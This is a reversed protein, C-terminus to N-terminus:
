IYDTKESNFKIMAIYNFHSLAVNPVCLCNFKGYLWLSLM